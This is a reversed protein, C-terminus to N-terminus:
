DFNKLKANCRKKLTQPFKKGQGPFLIVSTERPDCRPRVSFKAQSQKWNSNKPYPASDWVDEIRKPHQYSSMADGTTANKLLEEASENIIENQFESNNSQTKSQDLRNKSNRTVSSLSPIFRTGRAYFRKAEFQITFRMLHNFAM